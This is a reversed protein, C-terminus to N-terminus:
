LQLGQGVASCTHNWPHGRIGGEIPGQVAPNPVTAQAQAALVASSLILGLTCRAIWTGLVKMEFGEESDTESQGQIGDHSM